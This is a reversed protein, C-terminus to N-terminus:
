PGHLLSACTRALSFGRSRGHHTKRYFSDLLLGFEKNPSPKLVFNEALSSAIPLPNTLKVDGQFPRESRRRFFKSDKRL